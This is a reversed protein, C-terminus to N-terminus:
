RKRVLTVGDGIPLLVMDVREDGEIKANLARIADTDEDGTDPAIVEGHWLTNDILILGGTRVLELCREYYSDYNAKDADIFAFDFRGKEGDSLLRDLTTLAPALRLDIKSSFGAADWYRRAVSTWDENVDCCILTGDEPLAAAVWMASYGTFTGVEVARRARMSKVLFAMLAGQDPGIQMGGHEMELTEARLQQLLETERTGIDVAYRYLDPSIETRRENLRDTM